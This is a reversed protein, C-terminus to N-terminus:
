RRAAAILGSGLDNVILFFNDITEADDDMIDRLIEAWANQGLEIQKETLVYPRPSDDSEASIAKRLLTLYKRLNGPGTAHVAQFEQISVKDTARTYERCSAGSKGVAQSFIALFTGIDEKPLRRMGRMMMSQTLNFIIIRAGDPDNRPNIRAAQLELAVRELLQDNQWILDLHEAIIPLIDGTAGLGRAAVTSFNPTERQKLLWDLSIQFSPEATNRPKLATKSSAEDYVSERQWIDFSIPSENSDATLWLVEDPPASTAFIVAGESLNLQSLYYGVIANAVGSEVKRGNDDIYSAHFGVRGLGWIIRRSGAIWVLACASVCSKGDLVLTEYGRLRIQRGIELAPKLAGGPSELAVIAKPYKISLNRFREEDGAVIEGSVIIAETGDSFTENYFEAAHAPTSLTALCMIVGVLKDNMIEPEGITAVFM